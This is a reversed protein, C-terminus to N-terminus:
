NQSKVIIKENVLDKIHEAVRSTVRVSTKYHFSDLETEITTFSVVSVSLFSDRLTNQSINYTM